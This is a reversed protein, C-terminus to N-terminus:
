PKGSGTRTERKPHPKKLSVAELSHSYQIEEYGLPYDKRLPHGQWEYPMVIRRLDSHGEFRIGFMDWVEREYWNANPYVPELSNVSPANGNLPVRLRLLNNDERRLLQVVLHFRPREEPWYDSATIDLLTTFAFDDRLAKAAAPYKDPQVVLTTEGRSIELRAGFLDAINRAVVTLPQSM